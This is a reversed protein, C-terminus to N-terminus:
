SFAFMGNTFIAFYIDGFVYLDFIFEDIHWTGKIIAHNFLLCINAMNRLNCFFILFYILLWYIQNFLLFLLNFLKFLLNLILLRLYLFLIRLYLFLIRLYLFLIRLYLFYKLSFFLRIFEAFDVLLLLDLKEAIFLLYECACFANRLVPFMEITLIFEALFFDNFVWRVQNRLKFYDLVM